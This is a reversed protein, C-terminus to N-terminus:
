CRRQRFELVTVDVTLTSRLQHIMEAQCPLDDETPIRGLRM